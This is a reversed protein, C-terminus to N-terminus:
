FQTKRNTQIVDLYFLIIIVLANKGDEQIDVSISDTLSVAKLIKNSGNVECSIKM